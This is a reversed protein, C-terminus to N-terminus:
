ANLIFVFISLFLIIYSVTSAYYKAAIYRVQADNPFKEIMSILVIEMDNKQETLKNNENINNSDSNTTISSSNSHQIQAHKIYVFTLWLEKFMNADASKVLRECLKVATDFRKNSVELYMLNIFLPLSVMRIYQRNYNSTACRTNIAKLADYFLTQVKDIIEKSSLYSQNHKQLTKQAPQHNNNQNSSQKINWPILFLDL